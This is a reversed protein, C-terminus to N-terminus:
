PIPYTGDPVREFIQTSTPSGNRDTLNLQQLKTVGDPGYLELKNTSTNVKWRGETIRRIQLIDDQPTSDSLVFERKTIDSAPSTSSIYLVFPGVPKNIDAAAITMRYLGKFTSANIETWSLPTITSTTGDSWCAKVTVSTVGTLETTHDSGFMVVFVTQIINKKIITSM